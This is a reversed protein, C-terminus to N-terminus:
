QDRNDIQRSLYLQRTDEIGAEEAQGENAKEREPPDELAKEM